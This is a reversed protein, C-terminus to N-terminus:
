APKEQAPKLQGSVAEATPTSDPATRLEALSRRALALGLAFDVLALVPHLASAAPAAQRLFILIDAQIIYTVFLLWTMLKLQRPMKGLYMAVLMVLLPLGLLHGLGIHNEWTSQRAVVVLGALFVQITVGAIFLWSFLAYSLKALRRM